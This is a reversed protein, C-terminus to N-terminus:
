PKSTIQRSKLISDLAAKQQAMPLKAIDSVSQPIAKLVQPRTAVMNMPAAARSEQLANSAARLPYAAAEGIAAGKLAGLPGGASAGAATGVIGSILRSGALKLAGGLIGTKAGQNVADIEADTYGMSNKALRKALGRYGAKMATAPNDTNYANEVINQLDQMKSKAAWLTDGAKWEDFAQPNVLDDPSLTSSANRLSDRIKYLKSVAENDGARAAVSIDSQLKGDIEDLGNLSIPKGKLSDLRNLTDTVVNSGAFAQGEPTQYGVKQKIDAILNDTGTPNILGGMQEANGYRIKAATNIQDITPPNKVEIPDFPATGTPYKADYVDALGKVGNSVNEAIGQAGNVIPEASKIAPILAATNGAARLAIASRPNNDMFDSGANKASMLVDGLKQGISTKDLANATADAGSSLGQKVVNPIVANIGHGIVDNAAGTAVGLGVVPAMAPYDQVDQQGQAWRNSLDSGLGNPNTQTPATLKSPDIQSIFAKAQDPTTGDPVQFEATRGDPMLYQAVPM